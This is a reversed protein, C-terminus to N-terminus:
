FTLGGDGFDSFYIKYPNKEMDFAKNEDEAFLFVPGNAVLRDFTM